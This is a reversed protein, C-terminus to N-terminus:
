INGRVWELLGNFAAQAGAYFDNAHTGEYPVYDEVNRLRDDIEALLNVSDILRGATHEKIFSLVCSGKMVIGESEQQKLDEIMEDIDLTLDLKEM